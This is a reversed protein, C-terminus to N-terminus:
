GVEGSNAQTESIAPPNNPTKQPFGLFDLWVTVPYGSIGAFLEMSGEMYERDYGKAKEQLAIQSATKYRKAGLWGKLDKLATERRTFEDKIADYDIEHAM